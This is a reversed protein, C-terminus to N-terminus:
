TVEAAVVAQPANPAILYGKVRSGQRAMWGAFNPGIIVLDRGVRVLAGCDILADRHPQVTYKGKSATGPCVSAPWEDIAWSHPLASPPLKKM